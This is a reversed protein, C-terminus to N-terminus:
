LEDKSKVRKKFITTKSLVRRSVIFIRLTTSELPHKWPLTPGYVSPPAKKKGLFSVSM